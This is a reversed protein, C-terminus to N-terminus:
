MNISWHLIAIVDDRIVSNAFITKVSLRLIIVCIKLRSSPLFVEPNAGILSCSCFEVWIPMQGMLHNFEKKLELSRNQTEPIMCFIRARVSDLRSGMLLFWLVRCGINGTIARCCIETSTERNALKWHFFTQLYYASITRANFIAPFNLLCLLIM